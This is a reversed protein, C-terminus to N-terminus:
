TYTPTNLEDKGTFTFSFTTVDEMTADEGLDTIYASGSFVKDDVNATKFSVSILTRNKWATVLDNFGYTANFETLGEGSISWNRVGLIIETWGASDKTTVDITATTMQLSHSTCCGIATGGVYVLLDTGNIKGTTQAM